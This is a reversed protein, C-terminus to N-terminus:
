LYEEGSNECGQICVGFIMSCLREPNQLATASTAGGDRRSDLPRGRGGSRSVLTRVHSPLIGGGWSCPAPARRKGIM